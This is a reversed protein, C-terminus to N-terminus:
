TSRAIKMETALSSMYLERAALDRRNSQTFDLFKLLADFVDQELSGVNFFVGNTNESYPVNHKQLVRLIEVCEAKSLSKINELFLKRREYETASLGPATSM